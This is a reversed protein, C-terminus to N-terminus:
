STKWKPLLVTCIDLTGCIMVGFLAMCSLVWSIQLNSVPLGEREISLSLEVEEGPYIKDPSDLRLQYGRRTLIERDIDKPSDSLNTVSLSFSKHWIRNFHM